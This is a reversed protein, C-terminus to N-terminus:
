GDSPCSGSMEVHDRVQYRICCSSECTTGGTAVETCPRGNEIEVCRTEWERYTSSGCGDTGRIEYYCAVGEEEEPDCGAGSCALGVLFGTLITRIRFVM